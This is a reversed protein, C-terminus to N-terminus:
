LKGDNHYFMVTFIDGKTIHYINPINRLVNVGLSLYGKRSQSFKNDGVCIWNDSLGFFIKWKKQAM